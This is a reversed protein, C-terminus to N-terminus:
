PCQGSHVNFISCKAPFIILSADKGPDAGGNLRNKTSLGCPASYAML